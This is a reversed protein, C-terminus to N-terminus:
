QLLDLGALDDRPESFSCSGFSTMASTRGNLVEQFGAEIDRWRITSDSLVFAGPDDEAIVERIAADDLFHAHALVSATLLNLFGHVMTDLDPDHHRLPHHLGQTAKLPLGADRSAVIAAAVAEISPVATADLGGCRIKLGARRHSDIEHSAAAVAAADVIPDRARGLLPIEFYPVPPRVAVDALHHFSLDVVESPDGNEPLKVEFVDIIATGRFRTSFAKMSEVDREIGDAFSPPDEGGAGLGAIRLPTQMFDASEILPALEELRSAPCVFRALLWGDDSGLHLLFREFAETLPLKAPPFIGAYDIIESLLARNISPMPTERQENQSPTESSLLM